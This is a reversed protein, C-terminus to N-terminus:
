QEIITLNGVYMYYNTGRARARVTIVDDQTLSVGTLHIAQANNTFTTQNGSSHASGNVYLCSGNTGSTSSRYGTWYVHYTGSKAVTISQNTVATYETTNVRNVGAAIQANKSTGGGGSVNVTVSSYGDADDDSADYTGNQTITKTILTSGGGGSEQEVKITYTGYLSSNGVSFYMTNAYDFGINNDPSGIAISGYNDYAIGQNEVGNITWIYTDGEILEALYNVQTYHQSVTVTQEPVITTRTSGGGVDVVIEALNTVDYTGNQTKTESGSVLESASVTVATGTKTGGSIFGSTNTVSPTVSVQHNSVTGKTATPTGETGAPVSASAYNTVDKTGSSTVNYTGSVLESATVTVATGTHTGGTIVGATNTVSPTVSVSHNSVTGKTAVPTGETGSPIAVTVSSYGDADDDEADYTGNATVTKTILTASGGGEEIVIEGSSEDTFTLDSELTIDTGTRTGTTQSGDAKIFVKGLIVDGETATTPTTDTFRATGSGSPVVIAPVNNYTQGWLTVNPM